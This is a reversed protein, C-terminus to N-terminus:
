PPCESAHLRILSSCGLHMTPQSVPVKSMACTSTLSGLSSSFIRSLSLSMVFSRMWFTCGM